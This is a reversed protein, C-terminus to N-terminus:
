CVVDFVDPTADRDKLNFKYKKTIYNYKDYITLAYEIVSSCDSVLIQVDWVFNGISNLYTEFNTETVSCDPNKYPCISNKNYNEYIKSYDYFPHGIVTNYSQDSLNLVVDEKKVEFDNFSIEVSTRNNEVKSLILDIDLGYKAQIALELIDEFVSRDNIETNLYMAEFVFCSIDILSKENDILTKKIIGEKIIGQTTKRDAESVFFSFSAIIIFIIIFMIPTIM